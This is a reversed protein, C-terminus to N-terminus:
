SVAQANDSDLHNHMHTTHQLLEASCLDLLVALVRGDGSFASQMSHLQPQTLDLQKLPIHSITM